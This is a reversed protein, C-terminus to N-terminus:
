RPLDDPGEMCRQLHIIEGSVTSLPNLPVPFLWNGLAYARNKANVEQMHGHFRAPIRWLIKQTEIIEHRLAISGRVPRTRETVEVTHESALQPMVFSRLQSSRMSIMKNSSIFRARM